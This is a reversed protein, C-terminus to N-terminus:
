MVMTGWHCPLKVSFLPILLFFVFLFRVPLSYAPVFTCLLATCAAMLPMACAATLPMIHRTHTTDVYRDKGCTM